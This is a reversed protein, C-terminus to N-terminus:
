GIVNRIYSIAFLPEIVVPFGQRNHKITGTPAITTTTANRLRYERTVNFEKKM